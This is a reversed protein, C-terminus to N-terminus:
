GRACEDERSHLDDPALPSLQMSSPPPPLAVAPSASALPPGAAPPPRALILDFVDGTTTSPTSPSPSAVDRVLPPLQLLPCDLLELSPLIARFPSPTQRVMSWLNVSKAASVPEANRAPPAVDAQRSGTVLGLVPSGERRLETAAEHLALPSPLPQQQQQPPTQQLAPSLVQLKQQAQDVQQRQETIQMVELDAVDLGQPRHQKSSELM